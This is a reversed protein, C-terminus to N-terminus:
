QSTGLEPLYSPVRFTLFMAVGLSLASGHDRCQCVRECVRAM